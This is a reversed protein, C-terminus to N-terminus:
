CVQTIIDFSALKANRLVPDRGAGPHRYVTYVPLNKLGWFRLTFPVNESRNQIKYCMSIVAFFVGLLTAFFGLNFLLM